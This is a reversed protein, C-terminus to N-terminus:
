PDFGARWQEIREDYHDWAWEAADKAYALYDARRVTELATVPGALGLALIATVALSLLRIRNPEM